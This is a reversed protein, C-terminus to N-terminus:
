QSNHRFRDVADTVDEEAVGSLRGVESMINSIDDENPGAYYKVWYMYRKKGSLKLPEDVIHELIVDMDEIWRDDEVAYVNKPVSHLTTGGVIMLDVIALTIESNYTALAETYAPDDPNEVKRGLDESYVVPIVPRKFKRIVEAFLLNPVRKPSLKVGTSLTILGDNKKENVVAEIVKDERVSSKNDRM